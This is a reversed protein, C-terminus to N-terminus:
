GSWTLNEKHTSVGLTVAERAIQSVCLAQLWHCYNCGRPRPNETTLNSLTTCEPALAQRHDPGRQKKEKRRSTLSPNRSSYIVGFAKTAGNVHGFALPLAEGEWALMAGRVGRDELTLSYDEASDVRAAHPAGLAGSGTADPGRAATSLDTSPSESSPGAALLDQGLM